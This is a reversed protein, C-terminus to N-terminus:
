DNMNGMKLKSVKNLVLAGIWTNVVQFIIVVVFLFIMIISYPKFTQNIFGKIQVDINNKKIVDGIQNVINEM